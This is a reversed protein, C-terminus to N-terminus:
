PTEQHHVRAASVTYTGGGSQVRIAPFGDVRGVWEVVAERDGLITQVIVQDGAKFSRQPLPEMDFLVEDKQPPEIGRKAYYDALDRIRKCEMCMRGGKPLEKGHVSLDHGNICHTKRRPGSKGPRYQDGLYSKVTDPHLGTHRALESLRMGEEHHLRVLERIPFKPPPPKHQGRRSRAVPDNKARSPRPKPKPRPKAAVPDPNFEPLTLAEVPELGADVEQQVRAVYNQRIAGWDLGTSKTM